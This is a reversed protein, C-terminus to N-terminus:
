FWGPMNGNGTDPRLRQNAQFQKNSTIDWFTIVTVAGVDSIKEMFTESLTKNKKKKKLLEM